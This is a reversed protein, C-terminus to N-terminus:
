EIRLSNPSHHYLIRFDNQNAILLFDFNQFDSVAGTAYCDFLGPQRTATTGQRSNNAVQQATMLHPGAGRYPLLNNMSHLLQPSTVNTPVPVQTSKSSLPPPSSPQDFGPPPTSDRSKARGFFRRKFLRRFISVHQQDKEVAPPSTQQQQPQQNEEVLQQQQNNNFFQQRHRSRHNHHQGHQSHHAFSEKSAMRYSGNPSLIVRRKAVLFALLDDFIEIPPIDAGCASYKNVVAAFIVDLTSPLTTFALDCIVGCIADILNVAASQCIAQM